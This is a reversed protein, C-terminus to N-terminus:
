KKSIKVYIIVELEHKMTEEMKLTSEYETM